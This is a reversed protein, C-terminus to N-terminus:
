ADWSIRHFFHSDMKEVTISIKAGLGVAAKAKEEFCNPGYKTEQVLHRLAFLSHKQIAELFSPKSRALESALALGSKERGGTSSSPLFPKGLRAIL